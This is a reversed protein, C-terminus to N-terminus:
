SPPPCPIPPRTCFTAPPRAALGPGGPLRSRGNSGEFGRVPERTLLFGKLVGKEILRLPKPIVGERDVGYSGFLPRGHWETLTPDDVVDFSDPLVRAGMRGELESAPMAGGRGAGGVPRRAPALNRGLLEGLIQAGAEGEFLVPGAYEEGKPARTLAAINRAMGTIAKGMEDDSPMRSVATSHFTVGDRINM